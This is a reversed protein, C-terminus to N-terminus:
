KLKGSIEKNKLSDLYEFTTYPVIKRIEEMKGEKLLKRVSSASIIKGDISKRPIINVEIGYKPLIESIIRNYVSTVEDFPEEGLYRHNINLRRCFKTAIIESDLKAYETLMSNKDKLFYSPFTASSIIYKTSPVVKVNKLDETGKKVLQIRTKFSFTSKNEELVFIIVENNNKAANEILYRHGLTFPNCNMVIMARKHRIDLNNNKIINSIIGEIDENGQELLIVKDTCAVKKYGMDEFIFKNEIKTFIMSSLYGEEVLKNRIETLLINSLGKGQHSKDVAFDKIINRDKSVTAIIEENERIVATYDVSSDFELEFKELFEKLERLEFSNKYDLKSVNM